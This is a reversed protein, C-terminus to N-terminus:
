SEPRSSRFIIKSGDPSFFAGGDYGLDFTIQKVNSGDINMTYLDIDGNRTSTFVIQDGLPSVTAEADYGKEDTLQNIINGELDSIFIDFSDYIPWVYKGEKRLPVEPCNDDKLHTSAYIIHKNDPLFYSCTTRGLGLSVMKPTEKDLNYNNTFM